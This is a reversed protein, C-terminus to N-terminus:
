RPTRTSLPLQVILHISLCFLLLQLKGNNSGEHWLQHVFLFVFMANHAFAFSPNWHSFMNKSSHKSGKLLVNTQTKSFM